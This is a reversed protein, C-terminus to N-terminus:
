SEARSSPGLEAEATEILKLIQEERSVAAQIALASGSSANIQAVVNLHPRFDGPGTDSVEIGVENAFRTATLSVRRVISDAQTIAEFANDLLNTLIQGIEAERCSVLPLDPDIVLRLEVDSSLFRAEQMEVNHDIIQAIPLLEM